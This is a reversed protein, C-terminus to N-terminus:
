RKYYCIVSVKEELIDSYLSGVKKSHLLLQPSYSINGGGRGGPLAPQLGM